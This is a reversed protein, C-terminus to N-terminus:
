AAEQAVADFARNLDATTFDFDVLAQVASKRVRGMSTFDAENAEGVVVRVAEILQDLREASFEPSVRPDASDAPNITCGAAAAFPAMFPQVVRSEGAELRITVGATTALVVHRDSPATVKLM